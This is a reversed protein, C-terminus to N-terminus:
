RGSGQCGNRERSERGAEDHGPSCFCCTCDDLHHWGEDLLHETGRLTSPRVVMGSLPGAADDSDPYHALVRLLTDNAYIYHRGHWAFVRARKVQDFTLTGLVSLWGRM